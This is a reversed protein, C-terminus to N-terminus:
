IEKRTKEGKPPHSRNFIHLHLHFRLFINECVSQIMKKTARNGGEAFQLILTATEALATDIAIIVPTLKNPLSSLPELQSDIYRKGYM